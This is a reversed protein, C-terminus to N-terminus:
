EGAVESNADLLAQAIPQWATALSNPRGATNAVGILLFGLRRSQEIWDPVSKELSSRIVKELPWYEGSGIDVPSLDVRDFHWTAFRYVLSAPHSEGSIWTTRYGAGQYERVVADRDGSALGVVVRAIKLRDQLSLRGVMGYDILGLRGDPMLLVNGPHPDANYVGDLILQCGHVHVLDKLKRGLIGSAVPAAEYCRHRLRSSGFLTRALIEMFNNIRIGSNRVRRRAGAYWRLAAAGVPAAMSLGRALLLGDGNSGSKLHAKVMKILHARMADGDCFGLSAAIEDQECRLASALSIGDLFEMALVHQTCLNEDPVTPIRLLSPEFERDLMNRRCERLNAAENRFDLEAQHRGRLASIAQINDPFFWRVFRELNDFDVDYLEAVETYQVKVIVSRGDLLIARHAQAVSAAGVPEPEFDSFLSEFPQGVSQEIISRIDAFPRPPVGDQLPKFADIYAEEVIGVGITSLIQGLKVYIGGLALVTAMAKVATREHFRVFRAELEEPSCSELRARIKIAQYEFITPGLAMWFDVSRRFGPNAQYGAVGACAPVLTLAAAGASGRRM